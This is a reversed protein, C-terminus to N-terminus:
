VQAIVSTQKIATYCECAAKQLESRDLIKIKGRNYNILGQEQLKAAFKSVSPRQVGLMLAIFEQTLKLEDGGVRDQFMLLWRVLRKEVSHFCLCAPNQSIQAIFSYIYKLVAKALIKDSKYFEKFKEVRMRKGVGSHQVMAERPSSNKALFIETGSMGDNGIIGTEVCNGNELYTVVSIVSNEPFYLYNIREDPQYILQGQPMEVAEFYPLIKQYNERPLSQLILNKTQTNTATLM